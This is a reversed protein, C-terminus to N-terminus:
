IFVDPTIYHFHIHFCNAVFNVQKKLSEALINNGDIGMAQNQNASVHFSRKIATQCLRSLRGLLM